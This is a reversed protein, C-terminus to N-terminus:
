VCVANVFGGDVVIDQGTIFTNLDSTLFMVANAVDQPTGFRQLPVQRVLSDKEEPPLMSDTMETETFGPSVSNVLIGQPGLDVALNKTAGNLGHKSASYATRGDRVRQAAISSINIIKSGRPMVKGAENCLAIPAMLNIQMLRRYKEIDKGADKSSFIIGANNVL